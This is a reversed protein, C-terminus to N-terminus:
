PDDFAQALKAAFDVLLEDFKRNKAPDGLDPVSLTLHRQQDRKRAIRLRRPHALGYAALFDERQRPSFHCIDFILDLYQVPIPTAYAPNAIQSIFSRNKGIAEALRQRIGSPRQDLVQQFIRKYAAVPSDPVPVAAQESM